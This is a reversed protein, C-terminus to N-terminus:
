MKARAIRPQTEEVTYSKMLPFSAELRSVAHLRCVGVILVAALLSALVFRADSAQSWEKM